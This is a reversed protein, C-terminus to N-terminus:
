IRAWSVLRWFNQPETRNPKHATQENKEKSDVTGSDVLSGKIIHTKLLLRHKIYVSPDAMVQSISHLCGVPPEHKRGM